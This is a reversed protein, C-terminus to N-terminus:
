NDAAKGRNSIDSGDKVEKKEKWSDGGEGGIALLKDHWNWKVAM